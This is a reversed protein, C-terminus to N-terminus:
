RQILFAFTIPVMLGLQFMLALKLSRGISYDM